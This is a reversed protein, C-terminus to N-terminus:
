FNKKQVQQQKVIRMKKKQVAGRFFFTKNGVPQVRGMRARSSWLYYVPVKVLPNILIKGDLRLTRHSSWGFVPSIEGKSVFSSTEQCLCGRPHLSQHSGHLYAGQRNIKWHVCGLTSEGSPTKFHGWCFLRAVSLPCTESDMANYM